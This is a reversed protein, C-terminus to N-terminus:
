PCEFKSCGHNEVHQLYDYKAAQKKENAMHILLDFRPSEEDGEVIARYQQQHLRLIEQVAIGFCNLLRNHEECGAPVATELIPQILAKQWELSDDEEPTSAIRPGPLDSSGYPPAVTRGSPGSTREQLSKSAAHDINPLQAFDIWFAEVAKIFELLRQLNTPKQVFGNAYAQYSRRVDEASSNTSFMLVPIMRLEPHNKIASLTALGSLRPMNMDLLILHPRRADAYVGLQHLFSLAEEGDGVFSLEAPHRLDKVLRRLVQGVAPNDDVILIRFM